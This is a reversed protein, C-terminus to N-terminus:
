KSQVAWQTQNKLNDAFLKGDSTCKKNVYSFPLFNRVSNAMIDGFWLSDIEIGDYKLAKLTTSTINEMNRVRSGIEIKREIQDKIKSESISKSQVQSNSNISIIATITLILWVNRLWM